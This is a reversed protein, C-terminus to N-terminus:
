HTPSCPRAPPLRPASTGGGRSGPPRRSRPPRHAVAEGIGTSQLKEREVLVDLLRAEDLGPEANALAKALEALVDRKAHAALDLVVAERVLIDSIKM